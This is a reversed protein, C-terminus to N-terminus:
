IEQMVHCASPSPFRVSPLIQGQLLIMMCVLGEVCSCGFCFAVRCLPGCVFDEGHPVWLLGGWDDLRGQWIWCYGFLLSAVERWMVFRGFGDFLSLHGVWLCLASFNKHVCLLGAGAAVCRVVFSFHGFVFGKLPVVNVCHLPLALWRGVRVWSKQQLSGSKLSEQDSMQQLQLEPAAINVRDAHQAPREALPVLSYNFLLYM